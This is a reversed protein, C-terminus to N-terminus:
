KGELAKTLGMIEASPQTAATLSQGYARGEAICIGWVALLGFSVLASRSVKKM